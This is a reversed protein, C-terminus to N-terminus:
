GGNFPPPPPPPPPPAPPPPPPPVALFIDVPNPAGDWPGACTTDATASTVRFTVTTGRPVVPGGISCNWDQAPKTCSGAQSKPVGGQTWTFEGNVVVEFGLFTGTDNRPQVSAAARFNSANSWWIQGSTEVTFGTSIVKVQTTATGQLGGADTVTLTVTFTGSAGWQFNRDLKTPGAWGGGAWQSSWNFNLDVLATNDDTVISNIELPTNTNVTYAPQLIVEPPANTATNISTPPVTSVPPGPPLTVPPLSGPNQGGIDFATEDTESGVTAELSGFSLGLIVAFVGLMLIYEILAAGRGPLPGLRNLLRRVAHEEQIAQVDAM